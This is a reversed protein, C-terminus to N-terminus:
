MSRDVTQLEAAISGSESESEVRQCMLECLAKLQPDKIAYETFYGRKSRSLFQGDMLISLHKSTNGQKLGTAEIIETVTRPGAMLERLIRLRAPEGLISFVRAVRELQEDNM